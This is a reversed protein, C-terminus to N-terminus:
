QSRGPLLSIEVVLVLLADVVSLVQEENEDGCLVSAGSKGVFMMKSLTLSCGTVAETNEKVPGM